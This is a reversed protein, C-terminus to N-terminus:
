GRKSIATLTISFPKYKGEWYDLKAKIATGYFDETYDQNTKSDQYTVSIIPQDFMERLDIMQQRTTPGFEIVLQSFFGIFTGSYKGSNSNRGTDDAWLPELSHSQTLLPYNISMNKLNISM